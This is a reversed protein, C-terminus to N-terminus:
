AAPEPPKIGLRWYYTERVSSDPILEAMLANLSMRARRDVERLTPGMPSLPEIQEFYDAAAAIARLADDRRTIRGIVMPGGGAVAGAGGAVAAGEDAAGDGGDAASADGPDEPLRGLMSVLWDGINRLEDSVKSAAPFRPKTREGIFAITRRWDAEAGQVRDAAGQLTRRGARRAAAEAADLIAQAEQMREPRQESSGAQAAAMQAEASVKDFHRLAGQGDGALAMRRLPLILTGDKDSGGGSLGSLPQFRAEIGDEEDELPFLGQEWYRGVLDALTAMGASLGDLGDVRVAGEVLMAMIELDKGQQALYDRAREVLTEWDWGDSDAEEGMAARQEQRFLLKRQYRIERFLEGAAGEDERGDIGVGPEEGIPALVAGRTEEDLIL